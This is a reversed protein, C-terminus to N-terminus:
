ASGPSVAQSTPTTCAATERSASASTSPKQLRIIYHIKMADPVEDLFTFGAKECEKIVTNKDARVHGFVWEPSVGEEKKYDVIILRGGPRLAAYISDLMKYPYEFHHYTDCLFAMDISKPDLETSGVRSHVCVVNEIGQECCTKEIQELFPQTIEVAYVKGDPAVKRAIPRTHLGTGAGIDAVDVGPKLGCAAVIEKSHQVVDRNEREYQKVTREVNPNDYGKNIGPSLSEEQALGPYALTATVCLALVQWRCRRLRKNM